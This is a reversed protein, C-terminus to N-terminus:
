VRNLTYLAVNIAERWFNKPVDNEFLMARAVEVILKNRREAIGNRELTHPSSLQRRICHEECFINFERSTFEGGRDLRLSKIKVGSENEVKKEFIKFKEFAESKEKLFDVWMMRTFNDVFIM